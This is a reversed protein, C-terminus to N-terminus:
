MYRVPGNQAIRVGRNAVDTGSTETDVRTQDARICSLEHQTNEIALLRRVDWDGLATECPRNKVPALQLAKTDVLAPQRLIALDTKARRREPVLIAPM